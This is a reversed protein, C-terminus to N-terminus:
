AGHPPTPSDGRRLGIKTSLMQQLRKRIKTELQLLQTTAEDTLICVLRDAPPGDATTNSQLYPSKADLRLSGKITVGSRSNYQGERASTRGGSLCGESHVLGMDETCTSLTDPFTNERIQQHIGGSHCQRVEDSNHGWQQVQCLVTTSSICSTTRSLKYPSHSGRLVMEWRDPPPRTPSSMGHQLRKIRHDHIACPAPPSVATPSKQGSCVVVESQEPGGHKLDPQCQIENGHRQDGHLLGGWSVSNTSFQLARYHLPAQWVARTSASAKRVFRTIDRVTVSQQHLLHQALQKIKRLKEAPFILQLRVTDIQFGM